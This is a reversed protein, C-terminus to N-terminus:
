KSSQNLDETEQIKNKSEAFPSISVVRHAKCSTYLHFFLIYYMHFNNPEFQYPSNDSHFKFPSPSASYPLFYCSIRQWKHIFLSGVRFRFALVLVVQLSCLLSDDVNYEPLSSPNPNPNPFNVWSTHM